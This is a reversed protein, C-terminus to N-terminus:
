SVMEEQPGWRFLEWPEYSRRFALVAASVVRGFAAAQGWGDKSEARGCVPM